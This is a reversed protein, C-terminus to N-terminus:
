KVAHSITQLIRFQILLFVAAKQYLM